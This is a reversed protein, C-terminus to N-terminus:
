SSFKGFADNAKEKPTRMDHVLDAMSKIGEIAEAREGPALHKLNYIIEKPPMAGATMTCIRGDIWLFEVGDRWRVVAAIPHTDIWSEAHFGIDIRSKWPCAATM